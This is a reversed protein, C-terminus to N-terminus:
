RLPFELAVEWVKSHHNIDVDDYFSVTYKSITEKGKVTSFPARGKHVYKISIKVMVDFLRWLQDKLEKEIVCNGNQDKTQFLDKFLDVKDMPLYKFIEGANKVFFDEDRKKISDWCLKHSNVIFGEILSKKDYLEIM